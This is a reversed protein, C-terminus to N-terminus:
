DEEHYTNNLLKLYQEFDKIEAKVEKPFNDLAYQFDHMSIGYFNLYENMIDTPIKDKKEREKSSKAAGKTMMWKPVFKGNYLTQSWYDVVSAQNIKLANMQQAQVPYKISMRRNLMFGHEKKINPSLDMIFRRDKFVADCIQFALNVPKNSEAM